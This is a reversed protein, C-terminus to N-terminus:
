RVPEEMTRSVLKRDRRAGAPRARRQEDSKQRMTASECAVKDTRSTEAFYEPRSWCIQERGGQAPPNPLPYGCALDRGRVGVGSGEGCPPPSFSLASCSLMNGSDQRFRECGNTRSDFLFGYRM